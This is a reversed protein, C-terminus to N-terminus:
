KDILEIRRKHCLDIFDETDFTILSDVKLNVDDLMLRIIMDVLSLPRNRNLASDFTMSLAEEKYDVDAIYEVNDSRLIKGFIEVSKRNKSFRTNFTEYLTPFPILTKNSDLLKVLDHAQKHHGDRLNFLAYWFCTDVLVSKM